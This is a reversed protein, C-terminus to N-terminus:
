SDTLAKGPPRKFDEAERLNQELVQGMNPDSWIPWQVEFTVTHKAPDSSRGAVNLNAICIYPNREEIAQILSIVDHLGATLDVRMSYSKLSNEIVKRPNKPIQSIGIENIDNVIVGAEAAREEIYARAGLEYNGLRPELIYGDGRATQVIARLVDVNQARDRMMRDMDRQASTLEERIEAIRAIRDKKKAKLPNIVGVVIGYLVAFCGIGILALVKTRENKDDPLKM